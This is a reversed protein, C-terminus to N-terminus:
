DSGALATPEVRAYPLAHPDAPGWTARPSALFRGLRIGPREIWREAAAAIVLSVTIWVPLAIIAPLEHGFAIVYSHLVYLSYSIGGLWRLVPSTPRARCLFFAATLLFGILRAFAYASFGDVGYPVMPALLMVLTLGGILLMTRGPVAGIHYQYAVTGVWMPGIYVLYGVVPSTAAVHPVLMECLASTTLLAAAVLVPYRLLRLLWAVSVLVYLVLELGLTWFVSNLYSVDVIIQTMTLNGLVTVLPRAAFSPLSWWGAMVFGSALACSLWYLPFLRWFRGIWFRRLSGHRELTAPIIFGSCFFFVVVGINGVELFRERFAIFQPSVQDVAHVLLVILAALGRLGDLFTIRSPSDHPVASLSMKM